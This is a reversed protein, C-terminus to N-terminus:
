SAISSTAAHISSRSASTSARRASRRHGAPRADRAIADFAAHVAAATASTSRRGHRRRRRDRRGGSRRRTRTRTSCSSAPAWRAAGIAVAEGIGSGGGIVAATKGTLDFLGSSSMLGSEGAILVLVVACRRMAAASIRALAPTMGFSAQPRRDFQVALMVAVGGRDGGAGGAHRRASPVPRGPDARVAVRRAAHLLHRARRDRQPSLIALAVALAGGVVATARTVLLMRRDDAGPNVFRKYLDQSLSTTLM